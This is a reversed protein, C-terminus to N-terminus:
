SAIDTLDAVLKERAAANQAGPELRALAILPPCVDADAYNAECEMCSLCERPDIRGDPGIALPECGRPCIRCKGCFQRRRPGLTRFSSGVALAAGLPCVYRCFPRYMVLSAGALLLWWGFLGWHRTWPAVFFTSKFPEVEALREGLEPSYLYAPILGALIAYRLWRLAGHIKPPLQKDGIGLRRGVQHVLETLAGYPCLWGCFVGRGWVVFLLALYIWFVFLLPETLFLELKWDLLSGVLTLVQTVSPQAKLWFGLLVASAVLVVRHTARLRSMSATLWRRAIFLGSVLLLLGGLVVLGLTNNRWAQKWIPESVVPPPLPDLVYISSPIAFTSKFSKFEREFGGRGSYRSGLFVFDFPLGPDLQGADTLFVAGEKFDPADEAYVPSLNKYNVDRFTLADLGQEVRIRDFMGGRVFGSGKFSSTGEGAVVLLHQGPQLQKMLWEYQHVGLLGTGVPRADAITFWLDIFPEPPEGDAPAEAEAGHMAEQSVTLRGFVGEREMRAWSWTETSEVFRGGRKRDTSIVGMTTGVHRAADLITRNLALATVTAGSIADVTIADPDDTRGVIVKAVADRGAYTAAFDHLTKEPIGVLLIPESHHVVRAGVIRADPDLGVLTVLPKGSYAMIDVVDTSMVVWGLADGEASRGELFPQGAVAEFRAAGPLVRACALQACDLRAPPAAALAGGAPLLLAATVILISQAHSM